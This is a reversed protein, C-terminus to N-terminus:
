SLQTRYSGFSAVPVQEEATKRGRRVEAKMADCTCGNLWCDHFRESTLFFFLRFLLGVPWSLRLHDFGSLLESSSSMEKSRRQRRLSGLMCWAIGSIATSAPIMGSRRSMPLTPRLIRPPGSWCLTACTISTDQFCQDTFVIWTYPEYLFM